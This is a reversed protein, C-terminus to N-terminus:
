PQGRRKRRERYDQEQGGDSQLDDGQGNPRGTPLTVPPMLVGNHAMSGKGKRDHAGKDGGPAGPIGYAPEPRATPM